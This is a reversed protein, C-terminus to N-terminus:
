APKSRAPASNKKFLAMEAEASWMPDDAEPQVNAPPITLEIDLKGLEKEDRDKALWYYVLDAADAPHLSQWDIGQSLCWGNFM